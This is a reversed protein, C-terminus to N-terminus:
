SNIEITKYVNCKPNFFTEGAFRAGREAFFSSGRKRPQVQHLNPEGRSVDPLERM